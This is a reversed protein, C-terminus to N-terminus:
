KEGGGVEVGTWIEEEGEIHGAAAMFSWVTDGDQMKVKDSRTQALDTLVIRPLSNDLFWDYNGQLVYLDILFRRLACPGNTHKYAFAIVTADLDQAEEILEKRIAQQFGTDQLTDSLGHASILRFCRANTDDGDAEYVPLSRGYLWQVYM